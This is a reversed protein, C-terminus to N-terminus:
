LGILAETEGYRRNAIDTGVIIEDQNTYRYLLTQFAALLTMFLTVGQRRSLHQLELLLDPPLVSSQTQGRWTPAAPRPRDTPLRLAPLKDGLHRKWYALQATLAEGQFWNRQWFAYDAYQIPLEALPSSRGNAFADYLTAIEQTFVGISW